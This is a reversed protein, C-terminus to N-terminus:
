LKDKRIENLNNILNIKFKSQKRQYKNKNLEHTRM